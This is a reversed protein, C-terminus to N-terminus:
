IHLVIVVIFMAYKNGNLGVKGQTELAPGKGCIINRNLYLNQQRMKALDSRVGWM